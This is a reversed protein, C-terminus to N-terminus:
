VKRLRADCAALVLLRLSLLRLMHVVTMCNAFSLRLM